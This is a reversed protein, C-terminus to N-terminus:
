PEVQMEWVDFGLAANGGQPIAYLVSTNMGEQLASRDPVGELDTDGGM